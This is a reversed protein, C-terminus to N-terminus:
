KAIFHFIQLGLIKTDHRLMYLGQKSLLYYIEATNDDYKGIWM